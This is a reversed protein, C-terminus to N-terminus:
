RGNIFIHSFGLYSCMTENRPGDHVILEHYGRVTGIIAAQWVLAFILSIRLVLGGRRLGSCTRAYASKTDSEMEEIADRLPLPSHNQSDTGHPAKILSTM